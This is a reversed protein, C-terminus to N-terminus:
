NAPAPPAGAERTPQSAPATAPQRAAAAKARGGARAAAGPAGRRAAAELSQRSAKLTRRVDDVGPALQRGFRGLLAAFGIDLEELDAHVAALQDFGPEMGKGSLENFRCYQGVERWRRRWQGQVERARRRVDFPAEALQSPIEDYRHSLDRFLREVEKHCALMEEVRPQDGIPPRMQRARHRQLLWVSVSAILYLGVLGVIAFYAVYVVQRYRKFPKEQRSALV